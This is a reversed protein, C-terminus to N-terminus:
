AIGSRGSAPSPEPVVWDIFRRIARDRTFPPRIAYRVDLKPPSRNLAIRCLNRSAMAPEALSAFLCVVASTHELAEVVLARSEGTMAIATELGFAHLLADIQKRLHSRAPLHIFPFAALEAPDVSAKGALPHNAAVYFAVEEQWACVSDIEPVPGFSLFFGFELEGDQLGGLLGDFPRREQELEVLPFASMFSFLRAGVRESILEHTAFRLKRRATDNPTQNFAGVLVDAQRLMERARAYTQEGADTLVGPAGRRRRILVSGCHGELAKLHEIVSVKSIGLSEACRSTGGREVIQVFVELQRFTLGIM